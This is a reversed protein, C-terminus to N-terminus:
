RSSDSSAGSSDSSSDDSSDDSKGSSEDDEDNQRNNVASASSNVGNGAKATPQKNAQKLGQLQIKMSGILGALSFRSQSSSTAHQELPVSPHARVVDSQVSKPKKPITAAAVSANGNRPKAVRAKPAPRQPAKRTTSQTLVPSSIPRPSISPSSPSNYAVPPSSPISNPVQLINTPPQTTTTAPKILSEAGRFESERALRKTDVPSIESEEESSELEPSDEKASGAEAAKPMEKLANQEPDQEADEDEDEGDEVESVEADELGSEDDDDDAVAKEEKEEAEDSEDDKPDYDEDEDTEDTEDEDDGERGHDDDHLDEPEKESELEAEAELESKPVRKGQHVPNQNNDVEDAPGPESEADDNAGSDDEDIVVESNSHRTASHIGKWTHLSRSKTPMSNDVPSLSAAKPVSYTEPSADSFTGNEMHEVETDREVQNEDDVTPDDHDDASNRRRNRKKDLLSVQDVSHSSLRPPTHEGLEESVQRANNTDTARSHPKPLRSPTSRHRESVTSSVATFSTGNKQVPRKTFGHSILSASSADRSMSDRQVSDNRTTQTKKIQPLRKSKQPSDERAVAKGKMKPKSSSVNLATSGSPSPASTKDRLRGEAKFKEIRRSIAKVSRPIRGDEGTFYRESIELPSLGAQEMSIVVENDSDTWFPHRRSSSTAAPGPSRISPSLSYVSASRRRGSYTAGPSQAVGSRPVSVANQSRTVEGILRRTDVASSTFLERELPTKPTQNNGRTLLKRAVHHGQKQALQRPRRVGPHNITNGPVGSNTQSRAPSQSDPIIFKRNGHESPDIENQETSDPIMYVDQETSQLACGEGYQGFEQTEVYDSVGNTKRRKKSGSEGAIIPRKSSTELFLFQPQLSSGPAVSCDRLDLARVVRLEGKWNYEDAPQFIHAVRQDLDIDVDDQDQLKTIQLPSQM